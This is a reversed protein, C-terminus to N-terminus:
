FFIFIIKRRKNKKKKRKRRRRKKEGGKELLIQGSFNRELGFKAADKENSATKKVIFPVTFWVFM